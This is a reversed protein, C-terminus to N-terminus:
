GLDSNIRVTLYTSNPATLPEGSFTAEFEALYTGVTDTDTGTWAYQVTGATASVVDAVADVKLAGAADAMLFKVTAGSLDVASGGSTLTAAIVPLLDGTKITFDAAM